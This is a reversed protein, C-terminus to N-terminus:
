FPLIPKPARSGLSMPLTLLIRHTEFIVLPVKTLTNARFFRCISSTVWM